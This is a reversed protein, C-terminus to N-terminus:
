GLDRQRLRLDQLVRRAPGEELIHVHGVAGDENEGVLSLAGKWTLLGCAGFDSSFGKYIDSEHSGSAEGRRIGGLRDLLTYGSCLVHVKDGGRLSLIHPATGISVPHVCHFPICHTVANERTHTRM